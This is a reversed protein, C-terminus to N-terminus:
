CMTPATKMNFVQKLQPRLAEQLDQASRERDSWDKLRVFILGTNV